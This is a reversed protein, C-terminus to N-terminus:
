RTPERRKRIALEQTPINGLYALLDTIEQLSLSDVIGLPMNSEPLATWQQIQQEDLTVQRGSELLVTVKGEDQRLVVGAYTIGNHTILKQTGYGTAIRHSPFVVSELIQKRMQQQSITTLDIGQPPGTDRFRHCQACRANQFVAAGRQPSGDRELEADM